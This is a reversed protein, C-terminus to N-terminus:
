SPIVRAHGFLLFARNEERELLQHVEFLIPDFFFLRLLFRAEARLGISSGGGFAGCALGFLAAQAVFFLSAPGGFQPTSFVLSAEFGDMGGLDLLGAGLGLM